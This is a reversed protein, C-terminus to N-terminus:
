ETTITATYTTNSNLNADPNFTATRTGPDYSVAGTVGGNLYFTTENITTEDMNESFTATINSDVSVDTAADLPYTSTVAPASTDVYRSYLYYEVSGREGHSLTPNYIILESIDGNFYKDDSADRGIENAYGTGASLHPLSLPRKM